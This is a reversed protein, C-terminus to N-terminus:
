RSIPGIGDTENLLTVKTGNYEMEKVGSVIVATGAGFSEILEGKKFREIVESILIKRETVKYKKEDRM